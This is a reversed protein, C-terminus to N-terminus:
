VPQGDATHHEYYCLVRLEPSLSRMHAYGGCIGAVALVMEAGFHRYHDAWQRQWAQDSKEFLVSDAYANTCNLAVQRLAAINRLFFPHTYVAIAQAYSALLPEPGPSDGDVIDDIRHVYERWLLVWEMAERNGLCCRELAAQDQEHATM